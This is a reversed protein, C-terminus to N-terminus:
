GWDYNAERVLRYGEATGGWLPNVNCLGNSWVALASAATWILCKLTAAALTRKGWRSTMEETTRALAASLGVVALAILPFMFRVGIQVRCTLSFVLLALACLIPWNGSEM